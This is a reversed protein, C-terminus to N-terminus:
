EGPATRGKRTQGLMWDLLVLDNYARDWSNHPVALYETLRADGGASKLARIMDRGNHITEARDDDGTM